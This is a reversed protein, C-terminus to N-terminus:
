TVCPVCSEDTTTRFTGSLCDKMPICFTSRPGLTTWCNFCSTCNLTETTNSYTRVPCDTCVASTFSYYKGTGCDDRKALAYVKNDNSGIYITAGDNSVAPSSYVEGGTTVAWRQVGTAADLAHVKDGSGVFITASDNSITPSSYMVGGMTVEWRQAGTATDLAHVKYDYM